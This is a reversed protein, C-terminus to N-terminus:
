WSSSFLVVAGALSVITGAGILTEVVGKQERNDACLWRPGLEHKVFYCRSSGCGM